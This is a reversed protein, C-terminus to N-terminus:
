RRGYASVIPEYMAAMRAYRKQKTSDVINNCILRGSDISLAFNHKNNAMLVKNMHPLIAYCAM